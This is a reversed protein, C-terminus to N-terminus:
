DSTRDGYTDRLDRRLIKGVNTKPLEDVFQVFKPVKYGTLEQRCFDRLQKASLNDNKRVVVVKVLEGSKEDPVGIAGVELVDPHAAIVDEIENPYVNFGSVLIMDKKRDVIYFYGKEDMKAIDGTKLWGDETVTEATAEPRQWYGKMVQPGRICLEGIEGAPLQQGDEDIICCETSSIPVGISGNFDQVSIPNICAAPSSETLGYAEVLPKKTVKKWQEAVARQVAMGGGLSYKVPSFDVDEIGPTNLLGNFLTNVGTIATFRQKALAKVFGPMDRPNAILRNHAGIKIYLLCNANLAFVHYLPLATIIVDDGLGVCALWQYSQEINSLMNKNTLMAGKAVGTTGGTYQLFAIDELGRQVPSFSMDSGAKLIDRFSKAGAIQYDPIEKKVYKLVLNIINGKPFGLLDGVGTVIVHRVETAPLVEAVVHAFNELVVIAKAGSDTLQHKLERPTYLPNTNVAVLGARLIGCLAIPYQLINPLMVAVRDGPQLGQGQLWAAFSRSHQDIDAYKMRVDFSEYADRDAYERFANELMQGLSELGGLDIHEPVGPEYENLWPKQM